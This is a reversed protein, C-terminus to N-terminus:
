RTLLSALFNTASGVKREVELRHKPTADNKVGVGVGVGVGVVGVGVGVGVVGVGVGVGM